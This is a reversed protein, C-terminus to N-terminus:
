KTTLEQLKAILKQMQQITQDQKDLQEKIRKWYNEKVEEPYQIPAMVDGGKISLQVPPL